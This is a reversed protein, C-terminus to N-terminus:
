SILWRLRVRLLDMDCNVVSLYDKSLSWNRLWDVDASSMSAVAGGVGVRYYSIWCHDGFFLCSHLVNHVDARTQFGLRGGTM